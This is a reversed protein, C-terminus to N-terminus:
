RAPGTADDHASDTKLPTVRRLEQELAQPLCPKALFSDCGAARARAHDAAMVNGTVVIVPLRATAPASKLRRTLEWGDTGPLALDMVVADPHHQDVLALVKDGHTVGVVKWGRMTLYHRYMELTDEYDEAVLVVPRTLPAHDGVM